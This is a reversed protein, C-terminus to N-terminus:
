FRIKQAQIREYLEPRMPVFAQQDQDNFYIADATSRPDFGERALAHKKHKFTDTLELANCIRLFVPRAYSPLRADLHKRLTPLDLAGETVIAAM